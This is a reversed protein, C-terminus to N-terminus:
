EHVKIKKLEETIKRTANDRVYVVDHKEHLESVFRVYNEDDCMYVWHIVGDNGKVGLDYDTWNFEDNHTNIYNNALLTVRAAFEHMKVFAEDDQLLTKAVMLCKEGDSGFSYFDTYIGENSGFDTKSIIYLDNRNLLKDGDYPLFYDLSDLMVINAEKALREIIKKFEYCSYPRDIGAQKGTKITM